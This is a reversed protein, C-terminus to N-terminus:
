FRLVFAAAKAENLIKNVRAHTNVSNVINYSLFHRLELVICILFCYYIYFYSFFKCILHFIYKSKSFITTYYPPIRKSPYRVFPEFQADEGASLQTKTFYKNQFTFLGHLFVYFLCNNFLELSMFAVGARRLYLDRNECVSDVVEVCVKLVVVLVM